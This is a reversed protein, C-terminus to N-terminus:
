VLYYLFNFFTIINENVYYHFILKGYFIYFYLSHSDCFATTISLYIAICLQTASGYRTVKTQARCSPGSGEPTRTMRTPLGRGCACWRDDDSCDWLLFDRSLSHPVYSGCIFNKLM